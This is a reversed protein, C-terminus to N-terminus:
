FESGFALFSPATVRDCAFRVLFPSETTASSLFTTGDPATVTIELAAIRPGQRYVIRFPYYQGETLDVTFTGQSAGNDYVVRHDANAGTWGIYAEPGVWIAVADDVQNLNFTYTGTQPAYIYGRRNLIFGSASLLPSGHISKLASDQFNIGGIIDTTSMYEPQVKKYAEPQFDAINGGGTRNYYAFEMGQNRCTTPAACARTTLTQTVTSTTVVPKGASPIGGIRTITVTPSVTVTRVSTVTSTPLSLCSCAKTVDPTPYETVLDPIPPLQRADPYFRRKFPTPSAICSSITTTTTTHSTITPLVSNSNAATTITLTTPRVVTTTSTKVVSPLPVVAACYAVALPDGILLGVIAQVALCSAPDVIGPVLQPAPSAITASSLALAM